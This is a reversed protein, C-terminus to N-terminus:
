NKGGIEKIKVMVSNIDKYCSNDCKWIYISNLLEELWALTIKMKLDFNLDKLDKRMKESEAKYEYFIIGNFFVLLAYILM